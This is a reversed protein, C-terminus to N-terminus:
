LRHHLTPPAAPTVGQPGPSCLATHIRGKGICRKWKNPSVDGGAIGCPGELDMLLAGDGSWLLARPCLSLVLACGM